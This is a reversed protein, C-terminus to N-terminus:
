RNTKPGGRSNLYKAVFVGFGFIFVVLGLGAAFITLNGLASTIASLPGNLHKVDETNQYYTYTITFPAGDTTNATNYLYIGGDTANWEYDTGEVMRVSSNNYVTPSDGFGTTYQYTTNDTYQWIGVQQVHSENTVTTGPGHAAGMQGFDAVQYAAFAGGVFIVFVMIPVVLSRFTVM